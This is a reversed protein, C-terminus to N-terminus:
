RLGSSRLIVESIVNAAIGSMISAIKDRKNSNIKNRQKLLEDRLSEVIEDVNRNYEALTIKNDEIVNDSADGDIGIGVDFGKITNNKIINGTSKGGIKIGTSQNM